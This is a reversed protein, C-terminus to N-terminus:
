GLFLECLVMFRQTVNLTQCITPQSICWLSSIATHLMHPKDPVPMPPPLLNGPPEHMPPWLAPPQPKVITLSALCHPSATTEPHAHAWPHGCTRHLSPLSPISPLCRGRSPQLVPCEWMDKLEAFVQTPAQPQTVAATEPYSQMQAAQSSSSMWGKTKWNTSFVNTQPTNLSSQITFATRTQRKILCLAKTQWSIVSIGKRMLICPFLSLKVELSHLAAMLDMAGSGAGKATVALDLSYWIRSWCHDKALLCCRFDM